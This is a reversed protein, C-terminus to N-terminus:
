RRRGRPEDDDDDVTARPHGEPFGKWTRLLDRLRELERIQQFTAGQFKPQDEVVDRVANIANQQVLNHSDELARRLGQVAAEDGIHRLLDVAAIRIAASARPDTKELLKDPELRAVLEEHRGAGRLGECAALIEVNWRDAGKEESQGAVWADVLGGLGDERGHQALGLAAKLRVTADEDALRAPLAAILDPTGLKAAADVGFARMSTRDDTLAEAVLLRDRADVLTVMCTHLGDLMGAHDTKMAMLRPLAGRGYAIVKAESEGRKKVHSNRLKKIERTLKAGDPGSLTPPDEVAPLETDRDQAFLGACFVLPALAACTFRVLRTAM